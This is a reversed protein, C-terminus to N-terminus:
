NQICFILVECELNGYRKFAKFATGKFDKHALKVHHNADGTTKFYTPIGWTSCVVCRFRGRQQKASKYNKSKQRKQVPSNLVESTPLSEKKSPNPDIKDSKKINPNLVPTNHSHRLRVHKTLMEENNFCENCHPCKRFTKGDKDVFTGVIKNYITTFESIKHDTIMHRELDSNFTIKKGCITCPMSCKHIANVHKTLLKEDKFCQACFACKQYKEGNYDVFIGKKLNQSIEEHVKPNNIHKHLNDFTPFNALCINCKFNAAIQYDVQPSNYRKVENIISKAIEEEEM